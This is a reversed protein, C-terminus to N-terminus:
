EAPREHWVEELEIRMRHSYANFLEYGGDRPVFEVWHTLHGVELYGYLHGSRSDRVIGGDRECAEVVSLLDEEILHARSVKERLAENLFLQPRKEMEAEDVEQRLCHPWLKGILSRKLFARNRRRDSATPPKRDWGGLNFLVDLVHRVSKGADSFIDRCNACYVVYPLESERTREQVLWKTYNPAAISIQGGWSCCQAREGEYKLSKPVYGADRVLQRVRERSGAEHRVSCPDFVSVAKGKEEPAVAFAPPLGWESFVDYLLVTEIEPLAEGFFQLCSPCAMIARPRGLKEWEDRIREVVALQLDVDGSWVAPAGCCHLGIATGPKKELLYEYAKTVYTPDSAGLQCGPFFLYEAPGGGTPAAFLSASEGNAFDMDRLWFEHFAWPMADKARMARHANRLFLGLDIDEPCVEACLGCQNCTSIFRTLITSNGDLSGPNLTAHEEEEIRKPFKDYYHLLGCHRYCADCRCKACREAEASAEEKTYAAGDAPVIVPKPGGLAEPDLRMKTFAHPPQSKMNGTKLWAEVIGAAQLGQAMAEMTSAGLLSGGLFIGNTCGAFPIGDPREDLQGFADGGAGTAAYVADYESALKDIDRIETNLFLGYKEYMFQREIEPLFIDPDLQKWLRGGLCDDREFLDVQYKRNALRLTCALGSIGGGVVAIRQAKPPLNYSNPKINSAYDVAAKELHRLSIAGDLDSRACAGRCPEDCLAAVIAPFGVTNSYTRYAANFGGRAIRSIFERVDLHFPCASTCFADERELCREKIRRRMEEM